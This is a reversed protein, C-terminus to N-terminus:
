AIVGMEIMERIAENALELNMLRTGVQERWTKPYEQWERLKRENERVIRKHMELKQKPTMM